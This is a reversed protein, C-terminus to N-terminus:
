LLDQVSLLLSDEEEVPTSRRSVDKAPVAAVDDPTGAIVFREGIMLALIPQYAM